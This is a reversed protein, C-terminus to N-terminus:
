CPILASLKHKEAYDKLHEPYNLMEQSKDIRYDNIMSQFIEFNLFSACEDSLIIFIEDITQARELEDRMGSLLVPMQKWHGSKFARLNMLYGCLNKATVGKEEISDRICHVYSAYRNTIHQLNLDLQQEIDELITSDLCSSKM